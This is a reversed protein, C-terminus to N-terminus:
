YDYKGYECIPPLEDNEEDQPNRPKKRRDEHVELKLYHNEYLAKIEGNAGLLTYSNYSYTIKDNQAPTAYGQNLCDYIMKKLDAKKDNIASEKLKSLIDLSTDIKKNSEEISVGHAHQIDKLENIAAIILMNFNDSDAIEMNLHEVHQDYPALDTCEDVQGNEINININNTTGDGSRSKKKNLSFITGNELPVFFKQDAFIGTIFGFMPAFIFNVIYSTPNATTVKILLYGLIYAIFFEIGLHMVVYYKQQKKRCIQKKMGTMFVYRAMFLVGTITTYTIFINPDVYTNNLMEAYKDIAILISEM